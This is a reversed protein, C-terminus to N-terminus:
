RGLISKMKEKETKQLKDSEEYSYKNEEMSIILNNLDDPFNNNIKLKYRSTMLPSHKGGFYFFINCENNNKILENCDLYIIESDSFPENYYLTSKANSSRIEHGELTYVKDAGKYLGFQAFKGLDIIVRYYVDFENQLKSKNFIMTTIQMRLRNGENRISDLKLYGELKPFSVKRFLAEIYHHPAPKTQGDIRM